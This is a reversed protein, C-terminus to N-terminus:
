LNWAVSFAGILVNNMAVSLRWQKGEGLLHVLLGELPVTVLILFLVQLLVVM